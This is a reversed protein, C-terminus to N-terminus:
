APGGAWGTPPPLLLLLLCTCHAPLVVLTCGALWGALCAGLNQSLVVAWCATHPLM